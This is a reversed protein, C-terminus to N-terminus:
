AATTRKLFDRLWAISDADLHNTPEDLLLTTQPTPSCSGPWSSGAASAAPCPACRSPWCGTPCGSTPASGPPRPKPPTGASRPSGSRSSATDACRGAREDGDALEAMEIQPKEMEHLLEDLGRASLVRDRATVDLDGKRPIRRCTASRAPAADVQAATRCADRRGAGAPHHDQRRRQPRGPRDPRRAAGAPHRRSLLIRAGARLELDTATIM